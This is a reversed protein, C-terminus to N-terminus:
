MIESSVDQKSYCSCVCVVCKVEARYEETLLNLFESHYTALASYVEARKRARGRGGPPPQQSLQELQALQNPFANRNPKVTKHKWAARDMPSTTVAPALTATTSGYSSSSSLSLLEAGSTTPTDVLGRQMRRTRRDSAKQKRMVLCCQENNSGNREHHRSVTYHEHEHHLVKTSGTFSSSSRSSSQWAFLASFATVLFTM